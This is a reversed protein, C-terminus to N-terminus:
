EKETYRLLDNPTCQLARFLTNLTKLQVTPLQNKRISLILIHPLGTMESLAFYNKVNREKMIENLRWVIM